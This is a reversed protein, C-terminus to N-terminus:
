NTDNLRQSKFNIEIKLFEENNINSYNKNLNIKDDSNNKFENLTQNNSLTIFFYKEVIKLLKIKIKKKKPM